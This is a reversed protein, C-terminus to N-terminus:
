SGRRLLRPMSLLGLLGVGLILASSPEPVANSVVAVNDLNWAANDNIGQFVLDTNVNTVDAAAVNLVFKTMAFPALDGTITQSFNGFNVTFTNTFTGSEDMLSLKIAYAHGPMTLLTQSLTGPNPDNSGAGFAADCCPSAAFFSDISIGNGNVTWSSFNGTDFGGNTVLNASAASSWVTIGVACLVKLFNYM